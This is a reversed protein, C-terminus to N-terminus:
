SWHRDAYEISNIHMKNRPESRTQLIARQQIRPAAAAAAALRWNECWNPWTRKSRAWSTIWCNKSSRELWHCRRRWITAPKPAPALGPGRPIEVRTGKRVDLMKLKRPLMKIDAHQQLETHLDHPRHPWDPSIQDGRPTTHPALLQPSGAQRKYPHRNINPRHHITDLSIQRVIGKHWPHRQDNDCATIIVKILPYPEPALILTGQM